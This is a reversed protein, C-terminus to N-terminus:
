DNKTSAFLRALPILNFCYAAWPFRTFLKRIRAYKLRSFLDLWVLPICSIAKEKSLFFFANFHTANDKQVEVNHSVNEPAVCVANDVVRVAQM